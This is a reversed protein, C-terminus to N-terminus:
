GTSKLGGAIANTLLLLDSLLREAEEGDRDELSRWAKLRELQAGHLAALPESRRRINELQSARRKEASSGFLDAIQRVGERHDDLLMEMMQRRVEQDDVLDAFRQMVDQDTNLLRTEVHILTYRLFPWRDAVTKLAEFASPDTDRLQRLGTGVGFWGTLNFRSQNWSFVWPIARLDNLTRRGTRRAPRSGIKSRELVDITTAASYFEMFHPHQILKRFHDFALDALSQLARLPPASAQDVAPPWLTKRVVGSMLMEVNYTATPLNSFQQAITEGQITLELEGSLSGPPMSDVFRHYKGGGRSITGGMGHFFRLRVGHSSAVRTMEREANYINWRSALIGGDKNSDSYGLMVVQADNEPRRNRKWVPHRFLRELITAGGQLDEITELLPVVQFPADFLGVERLFLHVVLLDSLSRTMSVILSGIPDPGHRRYTDRVARYCNLVQDAEHGCSTGEPLFPRNKALEENLFALRRHEPWRDFAHDRVGSAALIQSVAKDHFASNQRIDLQALHFGFCQVLREVPVVLDQAIRRAGIEVLSRRLLSLDDRLGSPSAYGRGEGSSGDRPTSRLQLVVLNLYQRWPEGPNRDIARRSADGLLMRKEDLSSVLEAPVPNTMASFSLAAALDVVAEELLQLAAKRHLSLTDRTVEASVYPHGDRDGGVWCGFTMRPYQEPKALTSPDFGHAEWSRKLREDSAGLLRPFVDTFYHMVNNREAELDPKQLYVEGTRWWRELVAKVSERHEAQETPTIARDRDALLEHLEHHLALVTVRKAETPHATLVPRLRIEPLKAAIESETVGAEALAVFTEGWSGRIAPLGLERETSQRFRVAGNEEVANLLQFSMSLAQIAADDLDRLGAPDGVWPIADALREEGLERLVEEFCGMLFGLEETIGELGERALREKM